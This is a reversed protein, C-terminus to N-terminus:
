QFNTCQNAASGCVAGEATKQCNPLDPQSSCFEVVCFAWTVLAQQSEITADQLCQDECEPNAPTQDFGEFATEVDSVCEAYCEYAQECDKAGTQGDFFCGHFETFCIDSDLWCQEPEDGPCKDDICTDMAAISDVIAQDAGDICKAACDSDNGCRVRCLIAERCTNAVVVEVDGGDTSTDPPAIIVDAGTTAGTSGDAGDATDTGTSDDSATTGDTGDQGDTGDEADTGDQGDSGTADAVVDAGTTAGDTSDSDSDGCGIAFGALVALTITWTRKM